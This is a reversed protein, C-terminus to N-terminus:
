CNDFKRWTHYLAYAVPNIIASDAKAYEYRNRLDNIAQDISGKKTRTLRRGCEPCYNLKFGVGRQKFGVARGCTRRTGIKEYWNRVVFAVTIDQMLRGYEPDIQRNSIKISRKYSELSECFNCKDM